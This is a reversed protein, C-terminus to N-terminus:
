LAIFQDPQWILWLGLWVFKTALHVAQDICFGQMGRGMWGHSKAYDCIWHAIFEAAGFVPGLVLAVLVAHGAAHASLVWPWTGSGGPQKNEAIFDNQMQFDGIFHLAVLWFSKELILVM